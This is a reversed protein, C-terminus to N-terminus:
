ATSAPSRHSQSDPPARTYEHGTRGVEAERELASVTGSILAIEREELDDSITNNMVPFPIAFSLGWNTPMKQIHKAVVLCERTKDFDLDKAVAVIAAVTLQASMRYFAEAAEPSIEGLRQALAGMM